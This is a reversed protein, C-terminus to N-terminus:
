THSVVTNTDRRIMTNFQERTLPAFLDPLHVGRNELRRRREAPVVEYLVETLVAILEKGASMESGNRFGVEDARLLDIIKNYLKWDSRFNEQEQYLDTGKKPPLKGQLTAACQAASASM